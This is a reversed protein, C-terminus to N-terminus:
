IKDANNIIVYKTSNNQSNRPSSSDLNAILFITLGVAFPALSWLLKKVSIHINEQRNSNIDMNYTSIERIKKYYFESLMIEPNVIDVRNEPYTKNYNEQETKTKELQLLYFDLDEPTTIIAYKNGWFAKTLSIISEILLLSSIFLSLSIAWSFFDNFFIMNKIIYHIASAIILAFAFVGQVRSHLKEQIEGAQFYLKEYLEM